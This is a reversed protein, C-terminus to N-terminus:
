VHYIIGTPLRMYGDHQDDVMVNSPQSCIVNALTQCVAYGVNVYSSPM